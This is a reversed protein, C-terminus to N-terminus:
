EPQVYRLYADRVRLLHTKIYEPTLRDRDYYSKAVTNVPPSEGVSVFVSNSGDPSHTVTQLRYDWQDTGKVQVPYPKMGQRPTLPFSLQVGGIQYNDDNATRSIKYFVSFATDGFYRTLDLRAGRDNDWFSGATVTLSSELPAYTYRYSGLYSTRNFSLNNDRAYGQQFGVRHSGEPSYWSAENVVGYVDNSIMGGNLSIMLDPRVRLSQSLTLIELRPDNRSGRFAGLDDYGGSWAVPIDATASVTAGKWLDVTLSPNISLLYDLTSVETAVYSRLRPALTLRSRFWSSFSGEEVFTVLHNDDIAYTVDVLDGLLADMAADRFFLALNGTPITVQLMRINQVKLVLRVSKFETPLYKVVMGLVVGMGDLQNRTYRGNEYEILLLDDGDAGVQVHMFGDATLRDRLSRLTARRSALQTVDGIPLVESGAKLPNLDRAAVGVKPFPPTVGEAGAKLPQNGDGAAVPAPASAVPEPNGGVRREATVSSVSVPDGGPHRWDRGLAFEVGIGFSITGPNNSLSSKLTSHLNVPYGFLDPTIVRAGINTEKTDYEGLFYLWDFAKLEVGGFAGNMRESGFGYGLSLRLRSVEETAVLYNTRFFNAKGGVDQIGFALSPLWPMGNPTLPATTLKFQASLDKYGQAVRGGGELFSFLGASFLYNEQNTYTDKYEKQKAYWLSLTGEKQVGATPTNMIGTFGQLSLASPFEGAAAVTISLASLLGGLAILQSLKRVPSM